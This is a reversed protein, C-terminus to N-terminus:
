QIRVIGMVTGTYLHPGTDEARPLKGWQRRPRWAVIRVIATRRRQAAGTEGMHRSEQGRLTSVPSTRYFSGDTKCDTKVIM